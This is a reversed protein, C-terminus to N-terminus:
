GLSVNNFYYIYTPQQVFGQVRKRIAAQQKMGGIFLWPADDVIRTEAQN